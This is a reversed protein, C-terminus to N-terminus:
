KPPEGACEGPQCCYSGHAAAIVSRWPACHQQSPDVDYIPLVSADCTSDHMCKTADIIQTVTGCFVSNVWFDKGDGIAVVGNAGSWMPIPPPSNRGTTESWSYCLKGGRYVERRWGYDFLTSTGAVAWGDSEPACYTSTTGTADTVPAEETCKGVFLCDKVINWICPAM